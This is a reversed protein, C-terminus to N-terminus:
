KTVNQQLGQYQVIQKNHVSILYGEGPQPQWEYYNKQHPFFHEMLYAITGGHCVVVGVEKEKKLIEEVVKELGKQIRDKFILKSEGGPCCVSGIEDTIWAVYDAEKKLEEYGRMEYAGFDYEKLEEIAIGEQQPHLIALTEITRKLGTHFCVIEQDQGLYPKAVQLNNKGLVSLPIDTSGCYIGKENASTKGHRLLYIKIM